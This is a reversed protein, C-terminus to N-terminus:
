PHQMDCDHVFENNVHNQMFSYMDYLACDFFCVFGADDDGPNQALLPVVHM